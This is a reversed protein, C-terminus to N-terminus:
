LEVLNEIEETNFPKGIIIKDKDLLMMSPTMDVAYDEVIPSQWGEGDCINHYKKMGVRRLLRKVQKLEVSVNVTV